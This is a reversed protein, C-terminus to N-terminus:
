FVANKGSFAERGTLFLARKMQSIEEETWISPETEGLEDVEGDRCTEQIYHELRGATEKGLAYVMAETRGVIGATLAGFGNYIAILRQHLSGAGSKAYWVAFIAEQGEQMPFRGKTILLAEEREDEGRLIALYGLLIQIQREFRKQGMDGNCPVVYIGNETPELRLDFREMPRDIYVREIRKILEM